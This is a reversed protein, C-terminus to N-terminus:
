PNPSQGPQAPSVMITVLMNQLRERCSYMTCTGKDAHMRFFFPSCSIQQSFIYLFLLANNVKKELGGAHLCTIGREAANEEEPSAPQALATPHIKPRTAKKKQRNSNKSAMRLPTKAQEWGWGEYARVRAASVARSITSGSIERRGDEQACAPAALLFDRTLAKEM